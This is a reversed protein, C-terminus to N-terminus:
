EADPQVKLAYLFSGSVEGTLTDRHDTKIVRKMEFGLKEALRRCPLNKEWTKIRIEKVGSEQLLHVVASVMEYGYGMHQKAATVAFGLAVADGADQLMVYGVFAASKVDESFFWIILGNKILDIRRLFEGNKELIPRDGDMRMTNEDRFLELLGEEDRDCFPRLILRETRLTKTKIMRGLEQYDM